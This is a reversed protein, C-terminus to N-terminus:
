RLNGAVLEIAVGRRWQGATRWRGREYRRQDNWFHCRRDVRELQLRRGVRRHMLLVVTEERKKVIHDLLLLSLYLHM